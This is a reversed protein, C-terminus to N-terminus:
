VAILTVTLTRHPGPAVPHNTREVVVHREILERNLLQGTIKQRIRRVFLNQGGAEVAVVHDIALAAADGLLIADIIHEVHGLGHARNPKAQREIATTAVVMFKIWESLALIVLEGREEIMRRDVAAAAVRRSRRDDLGTRRLQPSVNIFGALNSRKSLFLHLRPLFRDGGLLGFPLGLAPFGQGLELRVIPNQHRRDLGLGLSLRQGDLWAAGDERGAVVRLLVLIFQHVAQGLPPHCREFQLRHPM